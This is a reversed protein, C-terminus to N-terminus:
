GGEAQSKEMYSQYLAPVSTRLEDILCAKGVHRFALGLLGDIYRSRLSETAFLRAMIYYNQRIMLRWQEPPLTPACGAAVPDLPGAAGLLAYNMLLRVSEDRDVIREVLRPIEEMNGRTRLAVAKLVLIMSEFQGGPECNRLAFDYYALAQDLDGCFMQIQGYAMLVAPHSPSMDLAHEALQEGLQRHGVFFLLKAAAAVFLPHRQVGAVHPTVLSEIEDIAADMREDMNLVISVQLSSALMIATAHDRPNARLKERLLDILPAHKRTDASFLQAAEDISIALPPEDGRLSLAPRELMARLIRQHLLPGFGPGLYMKGSPAEDRSVAVKWSDYIQASMGDILICSCRLKDGFQLISCDLIFTSEPPATGADAIAVLLQQPKNFRSEIDDRLAALQQRVRPVIRDPDVGTWLPRILLLLPKGPDHEEGQALPAIWRYGEGYVTSIFRPDRINDQLKRRLRSILYDINRDLVDGDDASVADLLTDRSLVQQPSSTFRRLLKREQRTFTIRGGDALRATTFDSSLRLGHLTLVKM